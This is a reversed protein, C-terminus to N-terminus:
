AQIINQVWLSPLLHHCMYVSISWLQCRQLMIDSRRSQCVFDTNLTQTHTHTHRPPPVTLQNCSVYPERPTSTELTRDSDAPPSVGTLPLEQSATYIPQNRHITSIRHQKSLPLCKTEAAEAANRLESEVSPRHPEFRLGGKKDEVGRWVFFQECVTGAWLYNGKERNVRSRICSLEIAKARPPSSPFCQFSNRTSQHVLLHVCFSM